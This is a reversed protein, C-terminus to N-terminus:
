RAFVNLENRLRACMPRFTAFTMGGSIVGGIVPVVKGVSKGFTQKTLQVGLIKCVKKIIPYYMTKTLAKAAIQKAVQKSAQEAIKRVTEVAAQVGGMVGVFLILADRAEETLKGQENAFDEWGYIYGLKQAVRLIHAIYQALDAPITGALALGGPIGAVASIASVKGTEYNIADKALKEIENATLGAQLPTSEVAKQIVSDEYGKRRLANTLFTERVIYVGPVKLATEMVSNFDIQRKEIAETNQM